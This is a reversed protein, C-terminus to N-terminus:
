ASSLYSAERQEEWIGKCESTVQQVDQRQLNKGQALFGQVMERNFTFVRLLKLTQTFYGSLCKWLSLSIIFTGANPPPAHHPLPHCHHPASPHIFWSRWCSMATLDRYPFTLHTQKAKTLADQLHQKGPFAVRGAARSFPLKTILNLGWPQELFGFTLLYLLSIVSPFHSEVTTVPCLNVQLNRWLGGPYPKRM